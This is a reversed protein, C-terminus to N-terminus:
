KEVEVKKFYSLFIKLCIKYIINQQNCNRDMDMDM